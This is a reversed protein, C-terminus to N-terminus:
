KSKGQRSSIIEEAVHAPLQEYRDFEMTFSARGQTMSRLQTAYGFMERLPVRAKIAQANGRPETGLVQGRRSNLDGIVDGLFDEPTVVELKMVPELLCPSAQRVAEKLAMSAAIKFAMESSDVDHYSGDFLTIKVGELPYGAIVGSVMAEKFGKECASIFEKPIVGGVVKNVFEFGTHGELPEINVVVHGYQGHGGSQRIFKGEIEKAEATIAEKFAVQPKGVNSEVKFERRIRDIIIDLHLEGMGSIVTQGTEQDTKVRFTPDEELMKGLAFGLKEQDGKTKPEVAMDIVPEPFVINELLIPAKEDCLTDGTTTAKLGVIGCINGAEIETIEERTNAHMLVLRSVREKQGKASNYIYSGAALKGSYVRAYTLRGVFPDTVIKFALASFPQDEGTSRKMEEGTKPHTGSVPPLNLPSPLYAVVADLLPQVGKNRLSSGNLVPVLTNAITGKRIAARIEDQSLEAGSLYKEMLADDQEAAAELLKEHYEKAKAEMDAPIASEEHVKGLDDTYVTAEMTILDVFGKYNDEIGIPLQLAVANAGLREKIMVVDKYFDAGMRDLKNIFCMRPVHYKDAQRWVTESQPEVGSVGDFVVVGGDLVRLSREVEATFDVHGPTDIINIRCDQWFCTTAASTITIGREREQEMWDMVAAGDHVEGIKYTKGTYFLIRETTTTKGADIHAIIGINRIKDLPYHKPM